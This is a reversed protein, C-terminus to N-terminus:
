RQGGSLPVIAALYQDDILIIPQKANVFIVQPKTMVQTAERFFKVSIWFNQGELQMKFAGESEDLIKIDGASQSRYQNNPDIGIMKKILPVEGKEYSKTKPNFTNYTSSLGDLVFAKVVHVRFGDTAFTWGTEGDFLISQLSYRPDSVKTALALKLWSLPSKATKTSYKANAYQLVVKIHPPSLEKRAIVGRLIIVRAAEFDKKNPVDDWFDTIIM